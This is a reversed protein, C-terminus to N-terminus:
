AVQIQKQVKCKKSDIYRVHTKLINNVLGYHADTIQINKCKEGYSTGFFKVETAFINLAPRDSVLNSIIRFFFFFHFITSNQPEIYTCKIIYTQYFGM